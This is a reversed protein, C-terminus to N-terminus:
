LGPVTRHPGFRHLQALMAPETKGHCSQGILPPAIGVYCRDEESWEVIKLYQRAAAKIQSATSKM